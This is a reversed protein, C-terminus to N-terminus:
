TKEKTEPTFLAARRKVGRAFGAWQAGSGLSRFSITQFEALPGKKEPLSDRPSRVIHEKEKAERM